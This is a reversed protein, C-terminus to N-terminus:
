RRFLARDVLVPLAIAGNLLLVIMWIPSQNPFTASDYAFLLGWAAACGFALVAFKALGSMLRAARSASRREVVGEPARYPNEDMPKNQLAPKAAAISFAM